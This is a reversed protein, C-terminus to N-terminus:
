FSSFNCISCVNCFFPPLTFVSQVTPSPSTPPNHQLLGGAGKIPLFCSTESYVGVVVSLSLSPALSLSM